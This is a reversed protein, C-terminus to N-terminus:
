RRVEGVHESAGGCVARFPNKGDRADIHHEVSVRGNRKRKNEKDLFGVGKAKESKSRCGLMRLASSAAPKASGVGM